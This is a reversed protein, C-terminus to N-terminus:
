FTSLPFGSSFVRSIATLRIPTHRDQMASQLLAPLRSLGLKGQSLLDIRPKKLGMSM